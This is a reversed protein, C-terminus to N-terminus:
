TPSSAAPRSSRRDARRGRDRLIRRRTATGTPSRRSAATRTRSHTSRRHGHGRRGHAHAPGDAHVPLARHRGALARELDADDFGPLGPTAARIRGNGADALSSAATRRSRRTRRGPCRPRPPRRWSARRARSRRHRRLDLDLRRGLGRPRREAGPRRHLARRQSRDRHGQPDGLQATPRRAATAAAGSPATARLRRSGATRAAGRPRPPPGCRRRLARRRHRRRRRVPLQLAADTALGGDGLGDAPSGGGVATTISGDPTIQRVRHNFTDAVYLTGDPALAIGRPRNLWAATAPGDDGLSAPSAAARSVHSIVGDPGVRRIRGNGTDSVFISGDAAVGVDSPSLLAAQTAPLGDGLGDAPNGGGAVTTSRDRQARDQRVRGTSTEALYIAGDPGIAVGRVLGLEASTARAATATTSGAARSRELRRRSRKPRTGAATAPTSRGRRAPRLRPPREADLRRRGARRRRVADRGPREWEQWSRSRAGRATPPSRAHGRLPRLQAPFGGARPLRGRVVYGIRVKAPQSGVVARGYADNGDWTFPVTQNPRRRSARRSSAAAWARRRGPDAEPEGPAVGRQGPHRAHLGGQLRASPPELLPALVAHRHARAGRRPDPEPLRDDLRRGRLRPM